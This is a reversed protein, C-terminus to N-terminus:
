ARGGIQSVCRMKTKWRIDGGETIPADAWRHVILVAWYGFGSLLGAVHALPLVMMDDHASVFLARGTAYEWVVKAVLLALVLVPAWRHVSSRKIENLALYGVAGCALGSLGGYKAIGPALFFVALGVVAAAAAYLWFMRMGERREILGGAVGVAVGDALLHDTSFHVWNGTMLRWWEGGAIAARDFVLWRSLWPVASAAVAISVVAFTLWPLNRKAYM